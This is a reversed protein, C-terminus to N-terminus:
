VPHWFGPHWFGPVQPAIALQLESFELCHACNSACKCSPVKVISEHKRVAERGSREGQLCGM